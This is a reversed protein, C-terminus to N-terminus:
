PGPLIERRSRDELPANEFLEEYGAAKLEKALLDVAHYVSKSGALFDLLKEIRKDM